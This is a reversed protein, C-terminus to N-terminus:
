SGPKPNWLNLRSARWFRTTRAPSVTTFVCYCLGAIISHSFSLSVM